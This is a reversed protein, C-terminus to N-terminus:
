GRKQVCIFEETDLTGIIISKGLIIIIKIEQELTQDLFCVREKEFSSQKPASIILDDLRFKWTSM